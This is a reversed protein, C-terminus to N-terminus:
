GLDREKEAVTKTAARSKLMEDFRAKAEKEAGIKEYTEDHTQVEAGRMESAIKVQARMNAIKDRIAVLSEDVATEGLGKLRDELALVQQTSIFEAMMQGQEQKLRQIEDTFSRLKIKYEEVRKSQAELDQSLKAQKEDIDKIRTLYRAGAERHVENDPESEASALAGELRRHLEIEERGLDKLNMETKERQSALMAVAKEMDKYRRKADDIASAYTAQIAQPSSSVVDDGARIFLGRIVAWLKAFYSM